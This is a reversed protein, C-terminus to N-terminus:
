SKLSFLRLERARAVAQTRSNVGLKAFINSSHKKVTHLSIVLRGAIEQNSCGECILALIELERRSLHEVLKVKEPRADTEGAAGPAIPQPFAALIERIYAPNVRGTRKSDLLGTLAQAIPQGEDIFISIFGEPEAQKLAQIVDRSGAQEDGQAFTLQARLLLAELTLPLFQSQQTKAILANALDIGQGLSDREGQVQGRYLLIRIASNYLQGNV